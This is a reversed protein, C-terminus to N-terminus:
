LPKQVFVYLNSVLPRPLLRHAANLAKFVSKRGFTYWPEATYLYSYDTWGPFYTRVAKRTNLRYRTPFVDQRGLGPKVQEMVEGHKNNPVVRAALAVYHYKHPTRACLFGGPRLVRGVETAFQRPDDLHELVYHAVVVDVSADDMPLAGDVILRNEHTTPNNLVVPDVDAGILTGVLPKLDQMRRRYESRDEFYWRGRGAGVDLVVDSPRLITQVRGYFEVTPDYRLYGGLMQEEPEYQARLAIELDTGPPEFM